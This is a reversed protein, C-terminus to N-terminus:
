TLEVPYTIPPTNDSLGHVTVTVTETSTTGSSDIVTYTFADTATEGANLHDFEGNPDYSFTGDENLTVSGVTGTTDITYSHSDSSDPDTFVPVIDIATEENTEQTLAVAIPGDNQGTVTITIKSTSSEGAEDTITYSFIDTATEEAPLYDFATGPDYHCLYENIVTGTGIM